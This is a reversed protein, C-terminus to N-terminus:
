TSVKVPMVRCMPCAGVIGYGNNANAAIVIAVDTGHQATDSTDANNDVLNWGPVVVSRLDPFTSDVGTDVTAIVPHVTANTFQWVQPVGMLRLGWQGSWGPDNPTLPLPNPKPAAAAVGALALAAAVALVVRRACARGVVAGM